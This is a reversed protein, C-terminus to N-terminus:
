RCTKEKKKEDHPSIGYTCLYCEDFPILSEDLPVLETRDTFDLNNFTLVKVKEYELVYNSYIKNTLLKM